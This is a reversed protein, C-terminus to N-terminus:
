CGERLGGEHVRDLIGARKQEIRQKQDATLDPMPRPPDDKVAVGLAAQVAPNGFTAMFGTEVFSDRVGRYEDLGTAIQQSIQEQVIWLPNDQPVPRRHKRVNEAAAKVFGIWPNQDSWMKYGMRLPHVEQLAKAQQPGSVARVYPQAYSRYLANNIESMRRVAAFSREDELDNAGLARIVDLSRPEFGTIYDTPSLDADVTDATKDALLAEYLGPPLVDIFDMNSIFERQEKRAVGGSVFIGLHGISEHIAYVITQDHARIDDVNEYLDM